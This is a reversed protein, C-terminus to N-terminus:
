VNRDFYILPFIANKLENLRFIYFITLENEISDVFCSGNFEM